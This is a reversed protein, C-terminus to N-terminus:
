QGSPILFINNRTVEQQLQFLYRLDRLQQARAFQQRRGTLLDVVEQYSHDGLNKMQELKEAREARTLTGAAIEATLIQDEAILQRFLTLHGGDNGRSTVAGNIAVYMCQRYAMEGDALRREAQDIPKYATERECARARADLNEIWRGTGGAEHEAPLSTCSASGVAFFLGIIIWRGIM